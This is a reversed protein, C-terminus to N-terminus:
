KKNSEVNQLESKLMGQGELLTRHREEKGQKRSFWGYMKAMSRFLNGPTFREAAGENTETRNERESFSSSALGLGTDVYSAMEEFEGV